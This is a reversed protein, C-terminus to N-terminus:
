EMNLYGKAQCADLMLVLEARSLAGEPDLSGAKIDRLTDDVVLEDDYGFNNSSADSRYHEYLLEMGQSRDVGLARLLM